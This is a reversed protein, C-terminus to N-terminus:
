AHDRSLRDVAHVLLVDVEGRHMAERLQTLAPRGAAATGPAVEAYVGVVTWGRVTAHARCAAEQAALRPDHGPGATSRGAVATRCYVAARLPQTMANNSRM